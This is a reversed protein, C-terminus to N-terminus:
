FAQNLYQWNEAVRSTYRSKAIGSSFATSFPISNVINQSCIQRSKLVCLAEESDRRCLALLESKDIMQIVATRGSVRTRAHMRTNVHVHVYTQLQLSLPHFPLVLPLVSSVCSCHHSCPNPAGLHIIIACSYLPCTERWGQRIKM